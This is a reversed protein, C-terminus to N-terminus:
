DPDSEAKEILEDLGGLFPIAGFRGQLYGKALRLDKRVKFDALSYLHTAGGDDKETFWIGDRRVLDLDLLHTEHTSFILQSPQAKQARLFYEIFKKALAPHMSRELEDILFVGGRHELSHLAPLLNLLRRTGDSENSIPLTTLKGSTNRHQTELSRVNVMDDDADDLFLEVGDVGPLEVPKGKAAGGLILDVINTSESTFQEKPWKKIEAKLGTVGTSSERLFQGAFAAFETNETILELLNHYSAGAPIVVLTLAFWDVVRRFRPGQAEADDLDFVKTLFLQNPRAGAGALHNLIQAGSGSNAADGLEVSVKNDSSTTRAFLNRDKGGELVELWEEHVRNKDACVGYRFIEDQQLFRVEICTPGQRMEDDFHFSDLPIPKRPPTGEVILSRLQGLALILNSKGSGNAGYLAAIRLAHEDVGPLAVCERPRREGLKKSAVLDLTQEDKYSRFNSLSISILM